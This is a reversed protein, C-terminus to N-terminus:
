RGLPDFRWGTGSVSSKQAGFLDPSLILVGQGGNKVSHTNYQLGSRACYGWPTEEWLKKFVPDSVTNGVVDGLVAACYCGDM